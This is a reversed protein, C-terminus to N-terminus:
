DFSTIVTRAVGDNGVAAFADNVESLSIRRGVLLDLPFRGQRWFDLYLPIDYRFTSSGMYVTRINKKPMLLDSFPRLEFVRDPPQIGILHTHGVARTLELAQFATAKGGVCEFAHLVGVGDTLARVAEVPDVARADIVDTAGFARALELKEPVVDIAIVRRAGAIAAGAIVSLGVGGCGIVAVTDGVRVEAANIAAGAGTVVGCGMVAAIDFPIDDAIVVLNNEHLMIAPAFGGIHSFATVTRGSMSARPAASEPRETEEVRTCMYSRGRICDDCHGCSRIECAVVHDGVKVSRVDPGIATVVGAVEHGPILPDPHEVVTCAAIDSHCIGSARVEVVVEAGQPEDLDVELFELPEGTKMLVAARM